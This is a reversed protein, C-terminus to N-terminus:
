QRQKAPARLRAFRSLVVNCLHTSDARLWKLGAFNCDLGGSPPIQHRGMKRRKLRLFELCVCHANKGDGPFRSARGLFGFWSLPPRFREVMSDELGLEISEPSRGVGDPAPQDRAVAVPDLAELLHQVEQRLPM